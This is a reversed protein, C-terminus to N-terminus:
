QVHGQLVMPAPYVVMLVTPPLGTRSGPYRPATEASQQLLDSGPEEGFSFPDFSQWGPGDTANAYFSPNYESHSRCESATYPRQRTTIRTLLAIEFGFLLAPNRKRPLDQAPEGVILIM